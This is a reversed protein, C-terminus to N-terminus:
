EPVGAKRLGTPLASPTTRTPSHTGTRSAGPDNASRSVRGTGRQGQAENGRGARTADDRRGLLGYTALLLRQSWYDEPNIAVARELSAAADSLVTRASNRWDASICTSSPYHPNLRMARDVAELAEGSRGAFSLAGALRLIATPMTPTARSRASRKPSPRRTSSRSYWCRARSRTRSRHRRRADGQCSVARGRLARGRRSPGIGM